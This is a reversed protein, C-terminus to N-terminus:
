DGVLGVRHALLQDPKLGFELGSAGREILKAFITGGAGARCGFQLGVKLVKFSAAQSLDVRFRCYQPGILRNFPEDIFRQGLFFLSAPRQTLPKFLDAGHVHHREVFVLLSGLPM